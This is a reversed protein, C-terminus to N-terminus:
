VLASFLRWGRALTAHQHDLAQTSTDWLRNQARVWPRWGLSAVDQFLSEAAILQRLRQVALAFFQSSEPAAQKTAHRCAARWLATARTESIGATNALWSLIQPPKLIM